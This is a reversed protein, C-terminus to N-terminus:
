NSSKFPDAAVPPGVKLRNDVLSVGGTERAIRVALDMKEKTSVNGSLTVVNGHAEVDVKETLMAKNYQIRVGVKAALASDRLSGKISEGIGQQAMAVPMMAAVALGMVISRIGGM